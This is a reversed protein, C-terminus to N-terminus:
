ISQPILKRLTTLLKISQAYGTTYVSIPLWLGSYGIVTVVVVVVVVVVLWGVLWGVL